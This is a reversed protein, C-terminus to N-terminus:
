WNLNHYWCVCTHKMKKKKGWWVKKKPPPPSLTYERGGFSNQRDDCHFTFDKFLLALKQLLLNHFHLLFILMGWTELRSLTACTNVSVCLLFIYSDLNLTYAMAPQEFSTVTHDTGLGEVSHMCWHDKWSVYRKNGKRRSDRSTNTAASAHSASDSAVSDEGRLKLICESFFHCM